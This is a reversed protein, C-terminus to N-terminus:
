YYHNHDIAHKQTYSTQVRRGMIHKLSLTESDIAMPPGEQSPQHILTCMTHRIYIENRDYAHELLKPELYHNVQLQEASTTFRFSRNGIARMQTWCLQPKCPPVLVPTSLRAQFPTGLLKLFAIYTHTNTIYLPLIEKDVHCDLGGGSPCLYRYRHM